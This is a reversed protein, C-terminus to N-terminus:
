FGFDIGFAINKTPPFPALDVFRGVNNNGFNNVEPDAGWYKSWTHLNRGTVNLRVDSFRSGLYRSGNKSSLDKVRVRNGLLEVALHRRSVATDSLKLACDDHSGVLATGSDVVAERGRDPGDIVLLRVPQIRGHTLSHNLSATESSM